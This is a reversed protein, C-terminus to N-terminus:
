PTTETSDFRVLGIRYFAKCIDLYSCTLLTISGDNILHWFAERMKIGQPSNLAKENDHYKAPVMPIERCIGQKICDELEEPTTIEGRAIRRATMNMKGHESKLLFDADVGYAQRMAEYSRCSPLIDKGDIVATVCERYFAQLDGEPVYEVEPAVVFRQSRDGPLLFVLVVVLLLAGGAAALLKLSKDDLKM